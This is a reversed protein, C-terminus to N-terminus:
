ASNRIRGKCGAVLLICSITACDRIKGDNIMKLAKKLSIAKVKIFEDYDLKQKVRKLGTAVFFHGRKNYRSPLPYMVNLKKYHVAKFGAEEEFERKAAHLISEKKEVDGQPIEYVYEKIGYRYQRELIIKNDKTIGIIGVFDKNAETYLTDHYIIKKSGALFKERKIQIWRSLYVKKSSLLKM